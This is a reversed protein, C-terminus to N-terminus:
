DLEKNLFSAKAEFVKQKTNEKMLSSIKFSFLKDEIM